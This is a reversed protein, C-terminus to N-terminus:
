VVRRLRAPLLEAVEAPFRGTVRLLGLYVLCGVSAQVVPHVGVALGALVALGGLCITVPVASLPLSPGGNRLLMVTNGTALMLEATVAAIAAGRAGLGPALALTLGAAATLSLLNAILTERNRHLSLLPFGTASAVFTAAIGIGQIQLVAVSPHDREGVLLEIAFPAVLVLGVVVFVGAMLALVFMRAVTQDFRPRDSFATRSIIPFSAGLLLTPVGILVEVIRLSIAFYGTEAATVVLSMLVVTIRFYLTNVAIAVAFVATDRLLPGWRRPHFAPRLRVSGRVLLVTMGVGLLGAPITAGLFPVTGEDALVLGVILITTVGQRILDVVTAWGFRLQSQLVAALLTQGLAFILGIGALLTGFVLSGGYGAVATFSVGLAVGVTSLVLRLGLLDGMVRDRHERDRAVALERLAITNVGGETLGGVIAIVALVASYRGFEADGLHRVILPASVVAMTLGLAYGVSRMVGGRLAAAGAAGTDILDAGAPPPVAGPAGPPGASPPVAAM